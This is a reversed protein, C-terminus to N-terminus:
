VTDIAVVRCSNASATSRRVDTVDENYFGRSEKLSTRRDSALLRPMTDWFNGASRQRQREVDRGKLQSLRPVAQRIIHCCAGHTQEGGVNSAM